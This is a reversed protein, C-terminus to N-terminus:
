QNSLRKSRENKALPNRSALILPDSKISYENPIPQSLQLLPLLLILLNLNHNVPLMGLVLLPLQIIKVKSIDVIVGHVRLIREYVVTALLM